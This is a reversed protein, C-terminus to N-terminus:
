AKRALYFVTSGLSHHSNVRRMWWTVATKAARWKWSWAESPVLGNEKGVVEFGAFRMQEMVQGVTYETVHHKSMMAIPQGFAIRMLNEFRYRSPTSVIVHGGPKLVRRIQELLRVPDPLHEWLNNMVTADISASAYPLAYADAVAFDILPYRRRAIEIASVSYDFGCVEARPWQARIAETIHGEGCGLDLVRVGAGGEPLVSALMDLTTQRRCTHFPSEIHEAVSYPDGEKYENSSDLHSAPVFVPFGLPHIGFRARTDSSASWESWACGDAATLPRQEVPDYYKSLDM